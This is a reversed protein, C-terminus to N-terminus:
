RPTEQNPVDGDTGIPQALETEVPSIYPRDEELCTLIRQFTRSVQDAPVTRSGQTSLYEDFLQPLDPEADAAVTDRTIIELKRGPCDPYVELVTAHPIIARVQESLAPDPKDTRITALCLDRGIEPAAARLEDLTGHFHRLQRGGSLDILNVEAPRGPHLDVMVVSKREGVEGFDLQIPSGAYRGTVKKSPLAQPKHIHGFAAYSVAPIDDIDTAYHDSIHGPRESRALNAGNLHLHAAFMAIDSHPDFNRHLEEALAREMAGVTETYTPRWRDPDGFADLARNAHIFPLVGLRLVTDGPGPFHLVGGNKPDRPSDILHIRSDPGFARAFLRFLHASDHNGRVVVVPAVTALEQLAILANEQDPYSPRSHDFLDGSHVILQPKETRAITIIESLVTDHDDARPEKYLVRGLHWDSTHLVRM